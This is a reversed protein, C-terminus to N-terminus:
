MFYKDLYRRLKVKIRAKRNLGRHRALMYDDLEKRPLMFKPHQLPFELNYIPRGSSSNHNKIYADEGNAHTGDFGIHSVLNKVPNICLGNNIWMNFLLQTDWASNDEHSYLRDFNNKWVYIDDSSLFSKLFGSDRFLPWLKIDYDYTDWVRKWSAWGWTQMIRSFYYSDGSYDVNRPQFNTGGIVYIREDNRYKGLLEEVFRFFSNDPLCDDELFIAENVQSFVWDYGTKPRMGCGLNNESFNTLIECKWDVKKILDRCAQCKEAEGPHDKRPGDAIVFLKPPEAERIKEFVRGATDLRNFIFFAVATHKLKYIM